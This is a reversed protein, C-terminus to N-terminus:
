KGCGPRIKRTLTECKCSLEVGEIALLTKKYEVGGTFGGVSGDSRVIRHCPAIIPLPNKGLANGVARSTGPKGARTALEAYTITEGYEVGALKEWVLKQFATGRRFDYRRSFKKLRGAFYAALEEIFPHRPSPAYRRLEGPALGSGAISIRTLVGDELDCYVKFPPGDYVVYEIKM